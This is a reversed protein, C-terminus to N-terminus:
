FTYHMTSLDVFIVQIVCCSDNKDEFVVCLYLICTIAVPASSLVARVSRLRVVLKLEHTTANLKLCRAVLEQPSNDKVKSM